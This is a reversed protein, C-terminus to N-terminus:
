TSRIDQSQFGLNCVAPAILRSILSVYVSTSVSISRTLRRGTNLLLYELVSFEKGTLEIGRGSREVHRQVRDLKLDAATLVSESALHSRRVLARSHASLESFSFPKALCDDAGTDPCPLRDKVRRRQKLVLVPLSPKESSVHRLVSV